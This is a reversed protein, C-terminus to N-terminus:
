RRLAARINALHHVSHRVAHDEIFFQATLLADANLSVTAATDLQEDTFQRVRNAAAQSNTRLLAVTEQKALLSHEHDRAHQANIQDVVDMTVGAIANGAMMAQALDIEAPYSVAVHHVLVGVSRKDSPVLACWEDESLGEIFRALTEANQEIRNALANARNVM